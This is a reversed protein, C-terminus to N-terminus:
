RLHRSNFDFNYIGGFSLARPNIRGSFTAPTEWYQYQFDIKLSTRHTLNLDVGAGPSLVESDSRIYRFNGFIYGGNLYTMRGRGSLFDVYPRIRRIPGEIKPGILINKQSSVTGSQIPCSGRLEVTTDIYRFALLNLDAGSTIDFNSGSELDTSTRTSALFASLQFQQTATPVSQAFSSFPLLAVMVLIAIRLLSHTSGMMGLSAVARVQTHSQNWGGALKSMALSVMATMEGEAPCLQFRGPTM